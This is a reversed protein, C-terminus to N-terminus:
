FTVTIIQSELNMFQHSFGFSSLGVQWIRGHKGMSGEGAERQVNKPSLCSWAYIPDHM